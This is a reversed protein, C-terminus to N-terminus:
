EIKQLLAFGEGRSRPRAGQWIKAWGEPPMTNLAQQVLRYRCTADDVHLSINGYQSWALRATRAEATVAVCAQPPLPLRNMQVVVPQYSKAANLWPLFLTMLLAWVLTIGAAWNTVAQRGRIHQRTIAWLWVPTFSVAVIMPIWKIRPEYFSSFYAAREALKEPWGYNMAFFGLWLFLALLGFTMIGFWNLFAAVGRRLGDLNAAGLLAMPPLLWVLYDQNQHPALALLASAVALWVLALVGWDYEFLKRNYATWGALLWAPFTFWLINRAYYLLSFDVRLTELGGFVGFMYRNQWLAFAAENTKYLAYPYLWALPLGVALAGVLSVYYRKYQWQRNCVLACAALLLLAPVLLGASWALLAVGVGLLLSAMIVRTKALSLGYLVMGLAAFVVSMGGLMHGMVILGPSGILILVVSRGHHRGLFRYGAMGCCMLGLATFTVTAFRAASYADAVAPSLLAKFGAAVWLYVPSVDFYPQGLVTPLWISSDSLEAVAEFVAPEANWLDHSFVGPWLWAFALLLLLWPKEYSPAVRRSEPPTYTLM